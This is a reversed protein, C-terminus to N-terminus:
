TPSPSAACSSLPMPLRTLRVTRLGRARAGRGEGRRDRHARPRGAGPGRGRPAARHDGARGREVGSAIEVHTVDSIGVEVPRQEVTGDDQSWWCWRSRTAAKRRMRPLGSSCPRSRCWWRTPTARWRSRRARRCAPSSGATPIPRAPGQGPLLHRRAPHDPERRRQRDRGGQRHLRQGAARRGRDRGTPRAAIQVIDTEDALVEVLIESLDAIVGIVSAENHMTGSVM